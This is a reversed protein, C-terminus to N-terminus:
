GVAKRKCSYAWWCTGARRALLTVVALDYAARNGQEVRYLEIVGSRVVGDASQLLRLSPATLSEDFQMAIVTLEDQDPITPLVSGHSRSADAFLQLLLAAGVGLVAIAGAPLLWSKM